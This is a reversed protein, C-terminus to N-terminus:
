FIECKGHREDVDEHTMTAEVRRGVREDHTQDHGVDNQARETQGDLQVVLEGVM